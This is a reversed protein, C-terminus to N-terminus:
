STMRRRMLGAIRDRALNWTRRDMVRILPLYIAAAVVLTIILQLLYRAVFSQPLAMAQAAAWGTACATGGILTPWVFPRIADALGGGTIRMAAYLIVFSCAAMSIAVAWAVTMAGGMAASITVATLFVVAYGIDIAAQLGFRGNAQTLSSGLTGVMRFAMGVSLVQLVPIGEYWREKFVLHVLPDAVAAQLFSLPMGVMALLHVAERFAKAQRAPELTLRNLAPMLVTQLNGMLLNLTQMSLAFAFFYVGVVDATHFRGLVIYDGQACFSRAIFMCFLITTDTMLHRWRRLQLAWKIRPRAMYWLLGSRTLYMLPLPMVFSYAGFGAAALAISMGSQFILMSLDLWALAGFRMQSNLKSRPVTKLTDLPAALALVLMLGAIQPEGYFWVAAPILALMVAGAVFGASLSMWFAPNAWREFHRGRQVLVMAIGPDQLRATFSGVSYALAVLGFDQRSLLATLAIQTAFSVIKSGITQSIMWMAGRATASGVAPAIVASRPPQVSSDLQEPEAPM